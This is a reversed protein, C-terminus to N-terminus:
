LPFLILDLVEKRIVLRCNRWQEQLSKQIQVCTARNKRQLSNRFLSLANIFMFFFFFFILMLWRTKSDDQSMKIRRMMTVLHFCNCSPTTCIWMVYFPLGRLSRIQINYYRKITIIETWKWRLDKQRWHSLRRKWSAYERKMVKWCM